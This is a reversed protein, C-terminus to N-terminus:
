GLMRGVTAGMEPGGLVADAALLDTTFYGYICKEDGKCHNRSTLSSAVKLSPLNYGTVVFSAFGKLHFYGDHGTGGAGDYVPVLLTTRNTRADALEEKCATSASVGTDGLYVGNLDVYSQCAGTVGALWGFGGPLAWGAPNGSCSTGSTTHLKLVREFSPAVTGSEPAFTTGYATATNWECLSITVGFGYAVRPSGWAVRTCAAVGRGQYSSGLLVEGFTAPLFTSGDAQRTSTRVEVFKTGEPREGRCGAAEGDDEPCPDLLGYADVGCVLDVTSSGDNSNANAYDLATSSACDTGKACAQMLALAAADSANQLQARESYLRGLDIVLAGGGLLVGGGLLLAVLMTVAGRDDRRLRAVLRPMLRPM